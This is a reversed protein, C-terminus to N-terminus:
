AQALLRTRVKVEEEEEELNFENSSRGVHTSRIELRVGGGAALTVKSVKLDFGISSTGTGSSCPKISVSAGSSVLM